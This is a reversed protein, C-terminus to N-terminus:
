KSTPRTTEPKVGSGRFFGSSVGEGFYRARRDADSEKPPKDGGEPNPTIKPEIKRAQPQPETKSALAWPCRTELAAIADELGAVSDGELKLQSKDLLTFAAGPDIFKGAMKEVAAARIAVRDREATAEAARRELDQAKEIAKNLAEAQREEATKQADLAQKGAEVAAQLADVTDFGLSKALAEREGGKARELREALQRSTMEIVDGRKAGGNQPQEGPTPQAAQAQAPAQTQAEIHAPTEPASEAGAAGAGGDDADYTFFHKPWIM